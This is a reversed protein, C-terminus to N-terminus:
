GLAEAVMAGRAAVIRVYDGVAYDSVSRNPTPYCWMVESEADSVQPPTGSWVQRVVELHPGYTPDSEAVGSVRGYVVTAMAVGPRPLVAVDPRGSRENRYAVLIGEQDRRLAEPGRIM